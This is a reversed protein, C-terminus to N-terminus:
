PVEARASGPKDAGLLPLVGTVILVRRVHGTPNLLTLSGGLSAADRHAAILAGLITSDIFTLGTLDVDVVPTARVTDALLGRVEDVSSVDLEGTLTVVTRGPQSEARWQQLDGHSSM